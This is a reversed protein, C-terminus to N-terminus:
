EPFDDIQSGPYDPLDALDQTVTPLQDPPFEPQEEPQSIPPDQHDPLKEPYSPLDDLLEDIDDLPEPLNDTTIDPLNGSLREPTYVLAPEAIDDNDDEPLDMVEDDALSPLESIVSEREDADGATYPENAPQEPVPEPPPNIAFEIEIIDNASKWFLLEQFMWRRQHTLNGFSSFLKRALADYRSDYNMIELLYRFLSAQYLQMEQGYEVVRELFEIVALNTPGDNNKYQELTTTYARLVDPCCYRILIDQKECHQEYLKLFVQNTKVLDALYHLSHKSNDFQLFLNLLLSSYDLDSCIKKITEEAKSEKGNPVSDITMLIERYARLALHLRKVANVTKKKEMKISEQYNIISTQIFHLTSMSLTESIKEIDLGSYRNFASFFQVAWFYYSEDHDQAKQQILNHKIQQMYNNYINEVFKKCFLRLAFSVKSTKTNDDSISMSTQSSLPLANKAKKLDTKGADLDIHNAASLKNVIMANDRASSTDNVIYSSFKALNPRTCVFSQRLGRKERRDRERLEAYRKRDVDDEGLKRKCSYPRARALTEPNQDRLMLYVIETFHFCFQSGKEGDQALQVITDLMGSKHMRHLCMDHADFDCHVGFDSTSDVPIHLINRILIVLREFTIDDDRNHRLHNNLTTWIAEDNAFAEKYSSLCRILKDHTQLQTPEKPVEQHEFLLLVSSTLNTSLRLVTSFLEPDGETYDCYQVMLPILDAKVVNMDGLTKRVIHDKQDIALYRIIEKLGAKCDRDKMYTGDNEDIKGLSNCVATMDDVIKQNVKKSLAEDRRKEEEDIRKRNEELIKQREEEMRQRKQLKKQREEEERRMVDVLVHPDEEM